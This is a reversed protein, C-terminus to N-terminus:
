VPSGAKDAQPRHDELLRAMDTAPVPRSFYYGQMEDCRHQHLFALQEATEVGEAVVELSLARGLAIIAEIIARDARDNALDRVFSRDIKLTSLPFRKIQAMSSYGTGFDDLSVRVGLDRLQGLVQAVREPDQMVMGETIELELWHPEMGSLQLAGEIRQLLDEEAFQRPSINVAMRAPPLGARQWAMNQMCATELVWAGIAVILTSQEAIPIFRAPSVSGLEAHNWRLLAEV